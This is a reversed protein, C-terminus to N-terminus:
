ELKILAKLAVIQNVQMTRNVVCSVLFRLCRRTVACDVPYSRMRFKLYFVNFYVTVSLAAAALPSTYESLASLPASSVIYRWTKSLTAQLQLHRSKVARHLRFGRECRAFQASSISGTIGFVILDVDDM